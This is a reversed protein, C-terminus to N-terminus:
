FSIGASLAFITTNDVIVKPEFYLDAGNDREIRFHLGANLAIGSNIHIGALPEVAVGGITALKFRADVDIAWFSSSGLYYTGAGSLRIHDSADFGLRVQPGVYFPSATLSGGIGFKLQASADFSFLLFSFVCIVLTGINKSKM